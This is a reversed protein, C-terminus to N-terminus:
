FGHRDRFKMNVCQSFYWTLCVGVKNIQREDGEDGERGRKGKRGRDKRRERKKKATIPILGWAKYM